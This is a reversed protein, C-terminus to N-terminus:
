RAVVRSHGSLRFWKLHLRAIAPLASSLVCPSTSRRTRSLTVGSCATAEKFVLAAEQSRVVAGVNDSYVILTILGETAGADRLIHGMVIEAVTSSAASGTTLGSLVEPSEREPKCPASHRM